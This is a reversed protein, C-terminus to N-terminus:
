PRLEVRPPCRARWCHTSSPSTATSATSCTSGRGCRTPTGCCRHRAARMPPWTLDPLLRDESVDGGGIVNGARAIATPCGPFSRIWSQTLLDAMAKSASYPDDGGLPDTKSTAPRRTSTATSRTPRSSSTRVCRRPAGRGGRARQAHGIVNTEYTYRPDRYRSASWRSPPWTCSSTRVGVDGVAAATAEADRIDVRVDHSLAPRARGGARVPQGDARTSPSVPCRTDAVSRAAADALRGQLRHPRHRPLADAIARGRGHVRHISDAVFDLMPETLGPYIGVWFTRNMVIDTNTLDGVIRFDVNRYAPQKVLNGAFMLRTGIKREDLFQM